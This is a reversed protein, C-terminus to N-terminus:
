EVTEKVDSIIYRIGLFAFGIFAAAIMPFFIISCIVAISM